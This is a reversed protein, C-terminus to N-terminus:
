DKSKVFEFRMEDTASLRDNITCHVLRDALDGLTWQSHRVLGDRTREEKANQLPQLFARFDHERNAFVDKFLKPVRSKLEAGARQIRHIHGTVIAKGQKTHQRPLHEHFLPALICVQIDDQARLPRADLHRNCSPQVRCMRLFPLRLHRAHTRPRLLRLMDNPTVYRAHSNDM